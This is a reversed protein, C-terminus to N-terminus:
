LARGAIRRKPADTTGASLQRLQQAASSKLRTGIEEKVRNLV